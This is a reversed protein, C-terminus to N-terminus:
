ESEKGTTKRICLKPEGLVRPYGCPSYIPSVDGGCVPCALLRLPTQDMIRIDWKIRCRDCKARKAM